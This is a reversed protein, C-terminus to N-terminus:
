WVLDFDEDESNQRYLNADDEKISGYTYGHDHSLVFLTDDDYNDLINKLEGVTMPRRIQDISYGDRSAEFVLAEKM